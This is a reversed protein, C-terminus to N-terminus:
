KPKLSQGPPMRPTIELFHRAIGTAVIHAILKNGWATHHGNWVSNPEAESFVSYTDITQIGRKRAAELLAQRELQVWNEKLISDYQLLFYLNDTDLSEMEDLSFEIIEGNTAGDLDVLSLSDQIPSPIFALRGVFSGYLWSVKYLPYWFPDIRPNYKTGKKFSKAPYEFVTSGNVVKLYPKPFGSSYLYRGRKVDYGVLTSVIVINYERKRLALQARLISQALGYSFVGGNDVRTNLIDQLFSPWTFQDSVQDGFVFSDGVALITQGTRPLEIRNNRFGEANTSLHVDTWVPTTIHVRNNPALVMGLRDHKITLAARFPESNMTELQTLVRFNCGHDQTCTRFFKLIRFGAEGILLLCSFVLLNISVIKIWTM